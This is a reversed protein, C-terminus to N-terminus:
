TSPDVLEPAVAHIALNRNLPLNVTVPLPVELSGRHGCSESQCGAMQHDTVGDHATIISNCALAKPIMALNAGFCLRATSVAMERRAGPDAAWTHWHHDDHITRRVAMQASYKASVEDNAIYASPGTNNFASAVAHDALSAPRVQHTASSLGHKLAKGRRCNAQARTRMILSEGSPDRVSAPRSALFNMLLLFVVSEQDFFTVWQCPAL